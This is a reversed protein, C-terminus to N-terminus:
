GPRYLQQAWGHYAHGYNRRRQEIDTGDAPKRELGVLHITGSGGTAALTATFTSNVTGPKLTTTTITVPTPPTGGGGGGCGAVFVLALAALVFTLGLSRLRM